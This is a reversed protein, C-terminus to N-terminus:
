TEHILLMLNKNYISFNLSWFEFSLLQYHYHYRTLLLSLFELLSFFSHCWLIQLAFGMGLPILSSPSSQVVMILWCWWSFGVFLSTIIFHIFRVFTARKWRLKQAALCRLSPHPTSGSSSSVSVFVSLGRFVDLSAVRSARVRDGSQTPESSGNLLPEPDAMILGLDRFYGIEPSGWGDFYSVKLNITKWLKM